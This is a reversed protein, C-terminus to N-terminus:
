GITDLSRGCTRRLRQVHVVGILRSCRRSAAEDAALVREVDRAGSRPVTQEDGARRGSRLEESVQRGPDLSRSADM